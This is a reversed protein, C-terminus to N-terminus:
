NAVRVDFANYIVDQYDESGNVYIGRQYGNVLDAEEM